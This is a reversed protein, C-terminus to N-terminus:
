VPMLQASLGQCVHRHAKIPFRTRKDPASIPLPVIVLVTRLAFSFPAESLWRHARADGRANQLSNSCYRCQFTKTISSGRVKRNSTTFFGAFANQALSALLQEILKRVSRGSVSIM